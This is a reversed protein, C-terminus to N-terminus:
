SDRPRDASLALPNRQQTRTTDCSSGTPRTWAPWGPSARSVPYPSTRDSGSQNPKTRNPKTQNPKTQNPKTQNPIHTHTDTGTCGARVLVYSYLAALHPPRNTETRNTETRKPYHYHFQYHYHYQYHYQDHNHYHYHIHYHNSAPPLDLRWQGIALHAEAILGSAWRWQEDGLGTRAAQDKHKVRSNPSKRRKGMHAAQVM